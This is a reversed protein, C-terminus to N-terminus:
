GSAVVPVYAPREAGAMACEYEFHAALQAETRAEGAFRMVSTHAASSMDAARKMQALEARSKIIRLKQVEVALPRAKGSALTAHLLLHPPESPGSWTTASGPSTTAAFLKSLATTSKKRSKGLMSTSAPYTASWPSPSTAPPLEGFVPGDNALFRPLHLAFTETTYAEDAGFLERAGDVGTRAGEWLEDHPDKPPVYLTM